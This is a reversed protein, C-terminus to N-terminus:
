RRPACPHWSKGSLRAIQQMIRQHLTEQAGAPDVRFTPVEAPSLPEGFHIEMRELDRIPRGPRHGPFRVGVPLVAAGTTLALRAAGRRGRLLADPHRNITGEPFVGVAAGSVLLRRCSEFPSISSRFLAELPQLFRPRPRKGPVVIVKGRRYLAAVGPVLMMPWDALFHITQGGRFYNCLVPLLVAEARNSHSAAVIFPGRLAELHELGDVGGVLRLAATTLSRCLFRDLPALPALSVTWIDRLGPLSRCTPAPGAAAALRYSGMPVSLRSAPRSPRSVVM